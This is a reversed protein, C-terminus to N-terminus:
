WGSSGAITEESEGTVRTVVFDEGDAACAVECSTTPTIRNHTGLDFATTASPNAFMCGLAAWQEATKPNCNYSRTTVVFDQGDVPCTISCAGSVVGSVVLGTVPLTDLPPSQNQHCKPSLPYDVCTLAGAHLGGRTTTRPQGSVMCGLAAWESEMKPNCQYACSPDVSGGGSSTFMDATDTGYLVERCLTHSFATAGSFSDGM